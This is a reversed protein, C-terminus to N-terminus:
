WDHLSGHFSSLSFHSFRPDRTYFRYAAYVTAVTMGSLHGFWGVSSQRNFFLLGILNICGVFETIQAATLTLTPIPLLLMFKQFPHIVGELVLLAMLGGSAGVVYQKSYLVQMLASFAGAGFIIGLTELSSLDRGLCSNGLFVFLGFCNVLLHGLTM